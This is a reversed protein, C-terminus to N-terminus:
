FFSVIPFENMLESLNQTDNYDYTCSCEAVLLKLAKIIMANQRLLGLQGRMRAMNMLQAAEEKPYGNLEAIEENEVTIKREDALASLAARQNAVQIATKDLWEEMEEETKNTRALFDAVSVEREEIGSQVSQQLRVRILSIDSQPVQENLREALANACANMKRQETTKDNMEDLQQKISDRLEQFSHAQPFKENIWENDFLSQLSGGAEVVSATVANDIYTNDVTTVPIVVTVPVYSTLTYHPVGNIIVPDKRDM